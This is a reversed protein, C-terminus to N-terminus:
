IAQDWSKGENVEGTKVKLPVTLKTDIIRVPITM